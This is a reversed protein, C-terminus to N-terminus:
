PQQPPTGSVPLGFALDDATPRATGALLCVHRVVDVQRNLGSRAFVHKVQSRVTQTSTGAARAIEERSYGNALGLVVRREARTLGHIEGFEEVADGLRWAPDEVLVICEPGRFFAREDVASRVITCRLPLAGADGPLHVVKVFAVGSGWGALAAAVAEAAAPAKFILRGTRDFSVTPVSEVIELAADNAAHVVGGAGVRLIGCRESRAIKSQGVPGVDPPAREFARKLHPVLSQLCNRVAEAEAEDLDACMVSFLFNCNGSRSITVGFGTEIGQPRLFDSYYESRKLVDRPLMQDSQVTLGLPRIAAHPMFPNLRSYHTSYAASSEPDLGSSLSFAGTNSSTNHYFLFSQGNPAIRRAEDLFDSWSGEGAIAAYIQNILRAPGIQSRM